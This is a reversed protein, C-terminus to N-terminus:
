RARHPNPEIEAACTREGTGTPLRAGQGRPRQVMAGPDALADRSSKVPNGWSSDEAAWAEDAKFGSEPETAAFGPCDPPDSPFPEGLGRIRVFVSLRTVAASCKLIGKFRSSATHVSTSDGGASM